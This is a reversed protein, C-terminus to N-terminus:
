GEEYSLKVRQGKGNNALKLWFVEDTNRGKLNVKIYFTGPPLERGGDRLASVNTPRLPAENRWLFCVDENTFKLVIDLIHPLGNPEFDIQNTTAAESWRGIIYCLCKQKNEDYFHLHAIVKQAVIGELESRPENAFYVRTYRPEAYGPPSVNDIQKFVLHPKALEIRKLRKNVKHFAMFSPFLLVAGFAIFWAWIPINTFYIERMSLTAGTAIASAGGIFGYVLRGTSRFFTNFSEWISIDM